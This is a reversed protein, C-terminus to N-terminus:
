GGAMERIQSDDGTIEWRILSVPILGSAEMEDMFRKFSYEDGLQAARETMFEEIQHKGGLYSAGYYPQQLYFFQEGWVTEWTEDFSSSISNVIDLNTGLPKYDKFDFSIYSTDIIVKSNFMVSYFVQGFNNTSFNLAIKQDPSNMYFNNEHTPSCGFFIIALAVYSVITFTRM